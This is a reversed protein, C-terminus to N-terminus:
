KIGEDTNCTLHNLQYFCRLIVSLYDNITESCGQQCILSCRCHAFEKEIIADDTESSWSGNGSILLSLKLGIGTQRSIKSHLMMNDAKWRKQQVTSDNM